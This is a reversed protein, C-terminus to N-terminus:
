LVTFLTPLTGTQRHGAFIRMDYFCIQYEGPPRTVAGATMPIFGRDNSYRIAPNIAVPGNDDSCPYNPNPRVIMLQFQQNTAAGTAYLTVVTGAPASKSFSGDGYWTFGQISLVGSAPAATVVVLMAAAVLGSSLARKM